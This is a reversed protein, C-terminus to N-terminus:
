NGGKRLKRIYESVQQMSRFKRIKKADGIPAVLDFAENVVMVLEVDEGCAGPDDRLGL